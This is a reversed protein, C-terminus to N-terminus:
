ENIKYKVKLANIKEPTQNIHDLIEYLIARIQISDPEINKLDKRFRYTVKGSKLNILTFFVDLEEYHLDIKLFGINEIGNSTSDFTNTNLTLANFNTSLIEHAWIRLSQFENFKETNMSDKKLVGLIDIQMGLDKGYKLLLDSYQREYEFQSPLGYEYDRVKIRYYFTDFYIYNYRYSNFMPNIISVNKCDLAAGYDEIIKKETKKYERYHESSTKSTEIEHRDEQTNFMNRFDMEGQNNFFAFNYYELNSVIENNIKGISDNSNSFYESILFDKKRLKHIGILEFCMEKMRQEAAKNKYTKNINYLKKLALINMEKASIKNFFYYLNQSQGSIVKWESGFEALKIEGLNKNNKADEFDRNKKKAIIYYLHAKINESFFSKGYIKELLFVNYFAKIYNGDTVNIMPLEHRAIKRIHEFYEKDVSYQIGTKEPNKELFRIAKEKRVESHPHDNFFNEEFESKKMPGINNLFYKSPLNYKEEDFYDSPFVLNKYPLHSYKLIDFISQINKSGYASQFFLKLGEMDAETELEKSYSIMSKIRNEVSISMKGTSLKQKEEYDKLLHRNRYHIAEHCLIFALQSESEIQSLLGVTVFVVGIDLAYANVSASKVVFFRLKDRLIRDGKLASDAVKNVYISLEDGYLVDGRFLMYQLAIKSQNSVFESAYNTDKYNLKSHNEIISTLSIKFDSPMEGKCKLPKYNYFDITDASAYFCVVIQLIFAFTKTRM